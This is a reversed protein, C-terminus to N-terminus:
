MVERAMWIVRGVVEVNSQENAAVELAPYLDRNDSILVLQGPKKGVRKVVIDDDIRIVFIKGELIDRQSEDVLVVDEDHLTPIMSDGTVRMLRMTDPKGKRRLWDRRFAYYGEVAGDTELSGGGGSPRARVLPVYRFEENGSPAGQGGGAPGLEGYSPSQEAVSEGATYMNGQGSELWSPNVHYPPRNLRLYWEAPVIGRRKADSVAAKGVGLIAALQTQTRSGTAEMMRQLITAFDGIRSDYQKRTSNIFQEEMRSLRKPNVYNKM